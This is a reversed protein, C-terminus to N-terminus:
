KIIIAKKLAEIDKQQEIIYLTLEEVKQLLKANMEAINIGDTKVQNETPIGPLHKNSQIFCELDNIPMLKYEPQFVFDAWVDTKVEIEKAFLKGDIKMTKNNFIKIWLFNYQDGFAFYSNGDNNNVPINFVIGSRDNLAGLTRLVADGPLSGTAFDNSQIPIGIQLRTNNQNAIEVYGPTLESQNQKSEIMPIVKNKLNKEEFSPTLSNIESEQSFSKLSCISLLALFLIIPKM